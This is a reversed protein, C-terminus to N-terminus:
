HSVVAAQQVRVKKLPLPPPRSLSRSKYVQSCMSGQEEQYRHITSHHVMTLYPNQGNRLCSFIYKFQCMPHKGYIFDWRGNVQLTYDEPEQRLSRFVTAKKKLASKMLAVPLDQPDQQLM